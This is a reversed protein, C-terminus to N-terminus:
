EPDDLLSCCAVTSVMAIHQLMEECLQEPKFVCKKEETMFGHKM